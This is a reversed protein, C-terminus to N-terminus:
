TIVIFSSIMIKKLYYLYDFTLCPFGCSYKYQSSHLLIYIIILTSHTNFCCFLNYNCLKKIFYITLRTIFFDITDDILFTLYYERRGM